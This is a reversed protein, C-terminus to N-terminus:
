KGMQSSINGLLQMAKQSMNQIALMQTERLWNAYCQIHFYYEELIDGKSIIRSHMFPELEINIRKKCYWCRKDKAFEKIEERMIQKRKVKTIEPTPPLINIVQVKESDKEKSKM